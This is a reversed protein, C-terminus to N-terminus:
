GNNNSAGATLCRVDWKDLVGTYSAVGIIPYILIGAAPLLRQLSDLPLGNAFNLTLLVCLLVGSIETQGVLAPLRWFPIACSQVIKCM